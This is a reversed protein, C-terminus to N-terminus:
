LFSQEVYELHVVKRLQSPVCWSEGQNTKDQTISVPCLFM